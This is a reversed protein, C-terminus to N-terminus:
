ILDWSICCAMGGGMGPIPMPMPMPMSQRFLGGIAAFILATRSADDSAELDAMPSKCLIKLADLDGPPKCLSKDRHRIDCTIISQHDLFSTGNGLNTVLPAPTTIPNILPTSRCDNLSCQLANPTSDQSLIKHYLGVGTVNIRDNEAPMTYTMATGSINPIHNTLGHPQSHLAM